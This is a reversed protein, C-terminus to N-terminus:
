IRWYGRRRVMAVDDTAYYYDEWATRIRQTRNQDSRRSNQGKKKEILSRMAKM